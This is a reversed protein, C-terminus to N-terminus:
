TCKQSISLDRFALDSFNVLDRNGMLALTGLIIMVLINKRFRSPVSWVNNM